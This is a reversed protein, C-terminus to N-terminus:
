NCYITNGITRCVTSSYGGSGYTNIYTANGITRITTGASATTAISVTLTAAAIATLIIMKM